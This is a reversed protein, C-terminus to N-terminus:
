GSATDVGVREAATEHRGSRRRALSVGGALVVCELASSLGVRLRSKRVCTRDGPTSVGSAFATSLGDMTCSYGRTTAADIWVWGVSLTAALTVAAALVRWWRSTRTKVAAFMLWVTVGGGGLLLVSWLLYILWLRSNDFYMM